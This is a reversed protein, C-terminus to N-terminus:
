SIQVIEISILDKIISYAFVLNKSIFKYILKEQARYLDDPACQQFKDPM